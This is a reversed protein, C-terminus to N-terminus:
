GRRAEEKERARVDVAPQISALWADWRRRRRGNRIAPISWGTAAAGALAALRWADGAGHWSLRGLTNVLFGNVVLWGLGATVVPSICRAPGEGGGLAAAAGVAVLVPLIRADGAPLASGALGGVVVAAAGVAVGIGVPMGKAM